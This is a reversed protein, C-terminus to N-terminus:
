AAECSKIEISKLFSTKKLSLGKKGDETAVYSIRTQKYPVARAMSSRVGDFSRGDTQKDTQKFFLLTARM